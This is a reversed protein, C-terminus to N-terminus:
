LFPLILHDFILWGSLDFTWRGAEHRLHSGTRAIATAFHTALSTGFRAAFDRDDIGEATRLGLYLTEAMAGARDFRELEVLPDRGTGLVQGYAALDGPVTLRRGWGAPDFAHAGAGLALCGQRRWYGLNHRCERGPRAYNSIEYHHFGAADLDDHLLTFQRAYSQEDPLALGGRRQLDHYPTEEEVSLGYCSLHDPELALFAAIERELDAPSQGPRAYILDLGLNDFGAARSWAVAQRIEATSHIRGLQALAQDDLSQAGLSLRNVGAARYGALSQPSLTGPNAELSIECGAVFGFRAAAAQLIRGVQAPTLLSPTGGGFFVTTLPGEWMGSAAALNLQQLLREVYEALLAPSHRDTSFFDCYPCKRACFPIHLYLSTM